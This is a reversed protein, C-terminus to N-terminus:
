AGLSACIIARAAFTDAHDPNHRIALDLLKLREGYADAPLLEVEGLYAEALHPHFRRADAIDQRLPKLLSPDSPGTISTLIEAQILKAWGGKFRPAQRTVERMISIMPRLEGYALDDFSACGNLYLKLVPQSFRAQKDNLAQLACDLVRAAAIAVQHRLDGAGTRAETFQKSWLLSRDRGAFLALSAEVRGNPASSGAELVLGAGPETETLRLYDTRAQQLEGLKLMLDRALGVSAAGPDAATVAVVPVSSGRDWPKWAFLALAALAVLLAGALAWRPVPWPRPKPM